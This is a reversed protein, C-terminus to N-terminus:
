MNIYNMLHEFRANLDDRDLDSHYTNKITYDAQLLASMVSSLSSSSIKLTIELRTSDPIQRTFSSLIQADTSEVIHAIHSLANDRQGVELVLMSGPRECDMITNIGRVLGAWTVMGLYHHQEDIIPLVNTQHADMLPIADFLHQQEFLYVTKYYNLGAKGISPDAPSDIEHTYSEIEEKTLLGSLVNEEVVPLANFGHRDMRERATTLRDTPSLHFDKKEIAEIINM